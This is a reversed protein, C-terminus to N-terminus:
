VKSERFYEEFEKIIRSCVGLAQHGVKAEYLRIERSINDLYRQSFLSKTDDDPYEDCESVIGVFTLFLEQDSTPLFRSLQVLKRCGYILEIRNSKMMQCVLVLESRLALDKIFSDSTTTGLSNLLDSCLHTTIGDTTHPTALLQITSELQKSLITEFEIGKQCSLLNAWSELESASICGRLYRILVTQVAVLEVVVSTGSNDWDYETLRKSLEELPEILWILSRLTHRREEQM